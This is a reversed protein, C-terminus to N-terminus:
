DLLWPRLMKEARSLNDGILQRSWPVSSMYAELQARADTWGISRRRLDTLWEFARKEEGPHSCFYSNMLLSPVVSDWSM